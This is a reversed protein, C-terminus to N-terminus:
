GACYCKRKELIMENWLSALISAVAPKCLECGDGKGLKDLVEDYTKLSM